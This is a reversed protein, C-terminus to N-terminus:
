ILNFMKLILNVLILPFFYSFYTPPESSTGKITLIDVYGEFSYYSVIGHIGPIVWYHYIIGRGLHPLFGFVPYQNNKNDKIEEEPEVAMSPQIGVGLFLITIGLVILIKKNM